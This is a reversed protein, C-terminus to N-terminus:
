KAESVHQWQHLESYLEVPTRPWGLSCTLMRPLTGPDFNSKFDVSKAACLTEQKRERKQRGGCVWCFM